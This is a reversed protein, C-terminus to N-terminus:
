HSMKRALVRDVAKEVGPIFSEVPSFALDDSRRSVLPTSLLVENWRQFIVKAPSDLVTKREPAQFYFVAGWFVLVGAYVAGNVNQLMVASNPRLASLYTVILDVASTIGLGTVIAMGHNRWSVGLRREFLLVFLLLGCEILRIGRQCIDIAAQWKDSQNGHTALATCGGVFLLFIGAWVFLLKALDIIGSYPRLANCLVEYLVGFELSMALLSLIWYVFFYGPCSYFYISLGVCVSVAYLIMYNYFLPFQTRLKRVTMAALIACPGVIGAIALLWQILSMRM